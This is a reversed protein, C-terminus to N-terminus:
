GYQSQELRSCELGWAVRQTKKYPSGGQKKSVKSNETKEIKVRKFATIPLINNFHWDVKFIFLNQKASIQLNFMIIISTDIQKRFLDYFVNKRDLFPLTFDGIWQSFFRSFSSIGISLDISTVVSSKKQTTIKCEFPANPNM